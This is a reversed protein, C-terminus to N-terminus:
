DNSIEKEVSKALYESSLNLNLHRQIATTVEALTQGTETSSEWSTRWRNVVAEESGSDIKKALSILLKKQWKPLEDLETDQSKSLSFVTMEIIASQLISHILADRVRAPKSTKSEVELTQRLKPVSENLYLCPSESDSLDLYWVCDKRENLEPNTSEKFDVWESNLAGGPMAPVIDTYLKWPVSDALRENINSAFGEEKKVNRSLSAYCEIDTTRAIEDRLLSLEGNWGNNKKTLQVAKRLRTTKNRVVLWVKIDNKSIGKSLTGDIQQNPDTIKIKLKLNSWNSEYSTMIISHHENNIFDNGAGDVNDVDLTAESIELAEAAYRYPYFISTPM